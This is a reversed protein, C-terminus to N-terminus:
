QLSNIFEQDDDEIMECDRERCAKCWYCSPTEFEPLLKIEALDEHPGSEDHDTNECYEPIGAWQLLLVDSPDIHEKLSELELIEAQSIREQEIEQRLYSLRAKATNIYDQETLYTYSALFEDKTLRFFDAMKENDNIFHSM